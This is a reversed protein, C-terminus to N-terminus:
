KINLSLVVEKGLIKHMYNKIYKEYLKTNVYLNLKRFENKWATSFIHKM